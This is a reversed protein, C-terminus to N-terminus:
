TAPDEVLRKRGVRELLDIVQHGAEDYWEFAHSRLDGLHDDDTNDLQLLRRPLYGNIRVYREGLIQECQYGSISSSGLLMHDLLGNAIWGVVGWGRAAHGIDDQQKQDLDHVPKGTGISVMWIDELRYGMSMAEAIALMSPDNTALAGDVLWRRRPESTSVAPYLTPAATAADCVETLSPNYRESGNRFVVIDRNIFDYALVMLQKETIDNLRLDGALEQIFERKNVGDYKPQNQMRGLIRDWVSKDFVRSLSQTSYLNEALYAMSGVNTACYSAILAGTSVGAFFDFSGRVDLRNHQELLRLVEATLTGRSGGGDLSLLVISDKAM